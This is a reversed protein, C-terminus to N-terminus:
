PIASILLSSRNLKKEEEDPGVSKHYLPILPKPPFPPSRSVRHTVSPGKLRPAHLVTGEAPLPQKCRWNLRVCLGGSAVTIAFTSLNGDDLKSSKSIAKRMLRWSVIWQKIPPLIQLHIVQVNKTRTISFKLILVLSCKKVNVFLLRGKKTNLQVRQLRQQM